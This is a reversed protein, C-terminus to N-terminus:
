FLFFNARVDDAASITGDDKRMAGWWWRWRRGLSAYMMMRMVDMDSRKNRVRM